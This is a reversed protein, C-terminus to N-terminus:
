SVFKTDFDSCKYILGCGTIDGNEYINVGTVQMADIMLYFM